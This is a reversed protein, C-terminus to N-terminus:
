QKKKKPNTQPIGRPQLSPAELFPEIKQYGLAVGIIAFILLAAKGIMSGFNSSQHESSSQGGKEHKPTPYDATACGQQENVCETLALNSGDARPFNRGKDGAANLYNLENEKSHFHARGDREEREFLGFAEGEDVDVSRLHTLASVPANLAICALICLRM